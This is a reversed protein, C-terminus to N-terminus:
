DVEFWSMCTALLVDYNGATAEKDFDSILDQKGNARLVKHAEGLIAFANGDKGTLSLKLGTLSNNVAVM